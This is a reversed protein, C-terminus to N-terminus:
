ATVRGDPHETLRGAAVAQALATELYPLLAPTRRRHGFLELTQVYLQSRAMGGTARCLAAMANGVEQPALQDLPRDASGAQRRFGTWTAPDLDAPWVFDGVVSGAPLLGLLAERRAESVRSLGFAAATVRVLRDRHVPGEIRVGAALVRRVARAAKADALSDLVKKEGAPKPTWVVFPLEGDLPAPRTAAPRTRPKASPKTPTPQTPTPETPTPEAPTSEATAAVEVVEV